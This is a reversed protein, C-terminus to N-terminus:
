RVMRSWSITIVVNNIIPARMISSPIQKDFYYTPRHILEIWIRTPLLVGSAVVSTHFDDFCSGAPMLVSTRETSWVCSSTDVLRSWIGAYWFSFLLHHISYLSTAASPAAILKKAKKRPTFGVTSVQFRTLSATLGGGWMLSEIFKKVPKKNNVELWGITPLTQAINLNSINLNNKLEADNIGGFM